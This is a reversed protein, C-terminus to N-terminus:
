DLNKRSENLIRTRIRSLTEPTIRLYSAIEKLNVRNLIDPVRKQLQLYREEPTDCHLSIIKKLFDFALSEVFARVYIEGDVSIQLFPRLTELSAQIVVSDELAKVDLLADCGKRSPLYSSIIEKEFAFAMIHEAGKADHRLFKFSGRVIYAIEHCFHGRQIFFSNKKIETRTGHKLIINKLFELEKIHIDIDSM